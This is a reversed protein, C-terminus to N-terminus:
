FRGPWIGRDVYQCRYVRCQNTDRTAIWSMAPEEGMSCFGTHTIYRDYTHRGTTLVAAGDRDILRQVQECTMERADPRGQALLPTSLAALLPVAIALRMYMANERFSDKVVM